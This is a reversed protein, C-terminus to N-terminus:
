GLTFGNESSRGVSRRYPRTAAACGDDTRSLVLVAAFLEFAWIKQTTTSPDQSDKSKLLSVM